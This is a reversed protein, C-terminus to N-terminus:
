SFTGGFIGGPISAGSFAFQGPASWTITSSKSNVFAISVWVLSTPAVPASTSWGAPPTFIENIFDITGGTPTAPQTPSVQFIFLEVLSSVAFDSAQGYLGVSETVGGFFGQMTM